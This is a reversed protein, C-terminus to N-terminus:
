GIRNEYSVWNCKFANLKLQIPRNGISSVFAISSTFLNTLKFNEFILFINYDM